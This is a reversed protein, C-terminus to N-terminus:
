PGFVLDPLFTSVEPVFTVLALVGLLVGLMPWMERVYHEVSCRTIMCVTFMLSGVPPTVAGIATNIVLVIGFHVPDIGYNSMIVLFIPALIVQLAIGEMVMGLVLLGLNIVILIMWKDDTFALMWGVLAQPVQELTLVMAFLKSCAVLVMVNATTLAAERLVDYIESGSIGKYVFLGIFLAYAAAIAGLETPTFWGMRLGVLLLVPMFLAWVASGGRRVVERMPLRRDRLVGYGRRGATIRIVIMMCVALILAPVIGALFLRAVSTSTLLGYIILVISPPLLPGGIISSCASIVSAFGLDYGHKRMVPVVTRADIAADATASGSMAGIFLSNLVAIQALGGKWHGVLAECFGYLRDAIGGRAMASGALVFFPVALLPFSELSGVLRQAIVSPNIPNFFFYLLSSGLVVFAVPMGLAMLVLFVVLTAIIM